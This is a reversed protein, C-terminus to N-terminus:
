TFASQAAAVQEKAKRVSDSAARLRENQTETPGYPQYGAKRIWESVATQTQRDFVDGRTSPFGLRTLAAKLGAVDPGTDGPRIDRYMPVDGGLVLVPRGGIDGAKAGEVLTAGKVPAKTVVASGTKVASAALTVARPSGFRVTGRTLLTSRLVRFEVPAVIRSAAPPGTRAAVDAPSQLQRSAAWGIGGSLVSVGVLIGVSRM